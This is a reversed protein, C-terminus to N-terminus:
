EGIYLYVGRVRKLFEQQVGLNYYSLVLNMNKKESNKNYLRNTLDDLQNLVLSHMGNLLADNYNKLNNDIACLNSYDNAIESYKSVQRDEELEEIKRLTNIKLLETMINRANRHQGINTYYCCYNNKTILYTELDKYLFKDALNLFYRGM